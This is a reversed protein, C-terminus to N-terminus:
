IHYEGGFFLKPSHFHGLTVLVFDGDDGAGGAADPLGEGLPQGLVAHVDRDGVDISPLRVTFSTSAAPRWAIATLHSTDDSADTAAMALATLALNLWTSMTILQAPMKGCFSNASM